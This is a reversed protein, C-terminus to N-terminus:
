CFQWAQWVLNATKKGRRDQQTLGSSDLPYRLQIAQNIQSHWNNKRNKKYYKPWGHIRESNLERKCNTKKKGRRPLYHATSVINLLTRDGNDSRMFWALPGLYSDEHDFNGRLKTVGVTLLLCNQWIYLWTPIVFIQTYHSSWSTRTIHM